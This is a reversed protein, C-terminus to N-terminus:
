DGKESVDALDIIVQGDEVTVAYARVPKVAPLGTVEGTKLDFLSGHMPCQVAGEYIDGQSLAADEHSCRDDLAYFRGGIHALCIARGRVEVARLEGDRLDGADAAPCRSM